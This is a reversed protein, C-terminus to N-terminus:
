FLTYIFPAAATSGLIILVGVLLLLIVIPILWFKKNQKLMALFESVIGTKEKGASAFDNPTKEPESM